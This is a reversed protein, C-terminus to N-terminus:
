VRLMGEVRPTYNRTKAAAEIQGHEFVIAQEGEVREIQRM